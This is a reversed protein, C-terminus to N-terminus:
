NAEDNTNNAINEPMFDNGREEDSPEDQDIM